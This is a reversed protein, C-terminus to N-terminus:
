QQAQALVTDLMQSVFQQKAKPLQEIAIIQQQLRSMPGRKSGRRPVNKGM